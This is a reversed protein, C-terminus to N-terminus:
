SFVRWGRQIELFGSIHLRKRTLWEGQVIPGNWTNRPDSTNYLNKGGAPTVKYQLQGCGVGGWRYLYPFPLFGSGLAASQEHGTYNTCNGSSCVCAPTVAIRRSHYHRRPHDPPFPVLKIKRNTALAYVIRACGMSLATSTWRARPIQLLLHDALLLFFWCLLLANSVWRALFCNLATVTAPENRRSLM